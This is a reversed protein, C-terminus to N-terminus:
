APKMGPKRRAVRTVLLTTTRLKASESMRRPRDPEYDGSHLYPMELLKLLKM